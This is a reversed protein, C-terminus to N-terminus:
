LHVFPNPPHAGQDMTEDNACFLGDVVPGLVSITDVVRLTCLNNGSATVSSGQVSLNGLTAAGATVSAPLTLPAGYLAREEEEVDAMTVHVMQLQEGNVNPTSSSSSSSATSRRAKKAVPLAPSSLVISSAAITTNNATDKKEENSILANSHVSWTAELLLCFAARSGLFWLNGPTPVSLRFM